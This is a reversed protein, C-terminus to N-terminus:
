ENSQVGHAEPSNRLRALETIALDLTYGCLTQRREKVIHARDLPTGILLAALYPVDPCGGGSVNVITADSKRITVKMNAARVMLWAGFDKITYLSAPELLGDGAPVTQIPALGEKTLIQVAAYTHILPCAIVM